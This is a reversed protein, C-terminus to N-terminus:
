RLDCTGLTNKKSGTKEIPDLLHKNGQDYVCFPHLSLIPYPVGKDEGLGKKNSFGWGMVRASKWPFFLTRATNRFRIDIISQGIDRVYSLYLKDNNQLNNLTCMIHPAALFSKFFCSLFFSLFSFCLLLSFKVLFNFTQQEICSAQSGTQGCAQFLTSEM